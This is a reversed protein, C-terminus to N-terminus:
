TECFEFVRSKVRRMPWWRKREWTSVRKEGVICKFGGLNEKSTVLPRLADSFQMEYKRCIQYDSWLQEPRAPSRGLLGM